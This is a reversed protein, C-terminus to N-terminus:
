IQPEHLKHTNVVPQTWAMEFDGEAYPNSHKRDSIIQTRVYLETNDFNYVAPNENTEFFVKGIEASYIRSIHREQGKDDLVPTSSTDFKRPTGIFKTTYSVGPEGQIKVTIQDRTVKIEDLLVGSSSYFEGNELANIVGMPTLHKRYVMVWGRGANSNGIGFNYYSHADDTALGYMVSRNKHLRNSLVIDWIRDTGPYADDGWNKVDPHGNYVEFFPDGKLKILDEPLIGWYFNPHNAHAIMPRNTQERQRLVADVNRQLVDYTSKGGQPQILLELNTANVHVPYKDFIDTIEEAQILIFEGPVEFKDKLESLTKLRMQLTDGKQRLDPWDDGFEIKLKELKEITFPPPWIETNASDVVDIWKEGESLINHDSLALFQYNNQHYWNVVTEPPADGDSWLTHTHLNGKLWKPKKRIRDCSFLFFITVIILLNKMYFSVYIIKM